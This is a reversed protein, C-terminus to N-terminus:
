KRFLTFSTLALLAVVTCQLIRLEMKMQDLQPRVMLDFSANAYKGTVNAELNVCDGVKKLPLTIIQQTHAVLMVTFSEPTVECVTLSVGDLSIYGKPVILGKEILKRAEVRVRLSDGDQWKELIEGTCDVHGEVTHGSNRSDIKLPREINVLDGEKLICLNTLALSEPAVNITFVNNELKVATMCAGNVAISCGIYADECAIASEIAIVFGEEERGDWLTVRDRKVSRVSAKEEVIGSFVM